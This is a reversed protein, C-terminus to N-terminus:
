FIIILSATMRNAEVEIMLRQDFSDTRSSDRTSTPSHFQMPTFGHSDMAVRWVREGHADSHVVPVFSRFSPGIEDPQIGFKNM